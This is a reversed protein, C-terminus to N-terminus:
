PLKEARKPPVFAGEALEGNLEVDRLQIRITGTPSKAVYRFAYPLEGIMRYDELSLSFAAGAGPPAVTYDLPVVKATSVTSQVVAGDITAAFQDTRMGQNRRLGPAVFLGGTFTKWSRALKGADLGGARAKQKLSPDDPTFLWLGDPTLTLDFVARGFKWARLRLHDPKSVMACDLRVSDAHPRSLAITGTASVSQIAAARQRLIQLEQEAGHWPMDPINDGPVNSACGGALVLILLLVIRRIM